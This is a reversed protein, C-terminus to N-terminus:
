LRSELKSVRKELVAFEDIDVKIKFGHKIFEMDMKMIEMNEQTLMIAEEIAELKGLKKNISLIHEAIVKVQDEFYESIAGIEPSGNKSKKRKAM